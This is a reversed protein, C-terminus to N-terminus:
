TPITRLSVTAGYVIGTRTINPPAKFIMQVADGTIPHFFDFPLSGKILTTRWFDLLQIAKARTKIPVSATFDDMDGTFRVRTMPSGSEPDIPVNDDVPAFQLGDLQFQCPMDDPWAPM